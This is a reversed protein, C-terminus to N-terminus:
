WQPMPNVPLIWPRADSNSRQRHYRRPPNKARWPSGQAYEVRIRSGAREKIGDLPTIAYNPNVRSSGGGGTRAVAANPGIVAISRIRPGGLPLVAGANKLLVVAATAATRALARQEPTDVSGGGRHPQDFLGATFMIRLMRRVADDVAAQSMPEGGPMELDLGANLTAATSYTSGWDSVVFGKFGWRKKLTENLLYSNEACWQGDVKNYASMV